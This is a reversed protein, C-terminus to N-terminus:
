GLGLGVGLGLGLWTLLEGSQVQYPTRVSHYSYTPLPAYGTALLPRYSSPSSPPSTQLRCGAAQQRCGAAQLRCGGRGGLM